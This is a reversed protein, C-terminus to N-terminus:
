ATVKTWSLCTGSFRSCRVSCTDALKHLTLQTTATHWAIAELHCIVALTSPPPVRSTRSSLLRMGAEESVVYLAANKDDPPPMASPSFYSAQAEVLLVQHLVATPLHSTGPIHRHRSCLCIHLHVSLCAQALCSTSDSLLVSLCVFACVSLSLCINPCDCWCVCPCVSLCVFLEWRRCVKRLASKDRMVLDYHTVLVNFTGKELRDRQLQKREDPTGDYMVVAM